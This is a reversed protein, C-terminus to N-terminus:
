IHDIAKALIEWKSAKSNRFMDGPLVDRLEDFLDKMERRRKREALKHSVRLEPGRAYPSS